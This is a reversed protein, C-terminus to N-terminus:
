KCTPTCIKQKQLTANIVVAWPGLRTYECRTHTWQKWFIKESIIPVIHVLTMSSSEMNEDRVFWFSYWCKMTLGERMTSLLVPYWGIQYVPIVVPEMNCDAFLRGVGAFCQSNNNCVSPVLRDSLSPYGSTGHQLWCIVSWCRHFM